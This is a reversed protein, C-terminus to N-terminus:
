KKRKILAVAGLVLLSMTAPEPIDTVATIAFGGIDKKKIYAYGGDSQATLRNDLEIAVKTAQGVLGANFIADNLDIQVAGSWPVVLGSDDVLNFSGGPTFTMQQVVDIPTVAAGEVELISITFTASVSVNTAATGAGVLSYDGQEQFQLLEIRSGNTANVTATLSGFTQDTGPSSMVASFTPNFLLGDGSVTPAGYLTAGPDTSSDETVQQYVVGEGSVNGYSIPAAVVDSAAVFLFVCVTAVVMRRISM